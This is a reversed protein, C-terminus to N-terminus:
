GFTTLADRASPLFRGQTADPKLVVKICKESDRKANFVDYGKDAEKLPLIHSIVAQPRLKGEKIMGLLKQWFSQVPTQGAGMHLGKEMFAGINFHNCYGAYVGIVGIFGGKRTAYIIENLIESPDTEMMVKMEVKHTLSHAYHFGVAEISCDPGNPVMEHLADLTKCEAFNITEVGPAAEKARQLRYAHEDIIIVRSAGRAFACQAALIGVPGSGWIAVISGEQVNALENAWWATPLIDSLFLWKEDPESDPIRLLNTDAFIVRAYEAQGGEYGGTLASYGHMGCTRHGYLMEQTDSTNTVDCCSYLGKKCYMCAGCGLDFAAVVRDGKKFNKVEPGVDEVIGMFEHGLLDGKRMGPMAGEYMHLDSGCIATSTVRLIADRPDTVVPVDRRNVTISHKGTWEAGLMQKNPNHNAHLEVKGLGLQSQDVVTPM